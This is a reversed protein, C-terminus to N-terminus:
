ASLRQRIRCTHHAGNASWEISLGNSPQSTSEGASAGEYSITVNVAGEDGSFGLEIPVARAGSTAIVKQAAREVQGVFGDGAAAPLQAYTAAQAALLRIAGVLRQDGPMTVTFEFSTPTM